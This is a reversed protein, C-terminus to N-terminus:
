PQDPDPGFRPWLIATGTGLAVGVDSPVFSDVRYNPIPLNYAQRQRQSLRASKGFKSEVIEGGYTRSDPITYKGNGLREATKAGPITADWRALTRLPSLAEGLQGKTRWELNDSWLRGGAGVTGGILAGGGAAERAREWSPHRGNFIDQALSTTAGGIAGSEAARGRLAALAGAVGGVAAGGYDGFSGLRGQGIDSIAQGGVGAGGGLGGVTAIERSILGTAQPVRTGAVFAGELGGSAAIQAATGAIEGITRAIPHHAEDYADLAQAGAYHRSYSRALGEGQSADALARVSAYARDGVGFTFADQAGNLGALAEDGAKSAIRKVAHAASMVQRAVADGGRAVQQMARHGLAAVDSPRAASVYQGLKNGDEWVRRGVAHAGAALRQIDANRRAMWTEITDFPSSRGHASSPGPM